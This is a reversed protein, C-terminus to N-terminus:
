QLWYNGTSSVFVKIYNHCVNFLFISHQTDYLTTNPKKVHIHILYIFITGHNRDVNFFNHFVSFLPLFSYIFLCSYCSALFLSIFGFAKLYFLYFFLLCLHLLHVFCILFSHFAFIKIMYGLFKFMFCWSQSHLCCRTHFICVM